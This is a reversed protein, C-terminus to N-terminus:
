TATSAPLLERLAAIVGSADEYAGKKEGSADLVVVSVTQKVDGVELATFADGDWDPLILVYDEPSRGERLNSVADNYSSKMLMEVPKRVLKPIGRVDAVNCIAVQDARPFEDRIASIIPNAQSSSERALFVLAAPVGLQALNITRGHGIAKYTTDPAHAM